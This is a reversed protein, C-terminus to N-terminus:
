SPNTTSVAIWAKTGNIDIQIHHPTGGSTTLTSIPDTTTAAATGTFNIYSNTADQQLTLCIANVAATNNNQIKVLERSSTSTSNSEFLAIRGTTLANASNITIVNDTTTGASSITLANGTSDQRINLCSTGSASPSDTPYGSSGFGM